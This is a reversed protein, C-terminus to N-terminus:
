TLIALSMEWEMNNVWGCIASMKELPLVQYTSLIEGFSFQHTMLPLSAHSTPLLRLNSSIHAGTWKWLNLLSSLPINKYSIFNHGQRRNTNHNLLFMCFHYNSHCFSCLNCPTGDQIIQFRGLHWFWVALQAKCFFIIFIFLSIETNVVVKVAINALCVSCFDISENKRM